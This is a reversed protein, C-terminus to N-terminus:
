TNAKDYTLKLKQVLAHISGLTEAQLHCIVKPQFSAEVLPSAYNM